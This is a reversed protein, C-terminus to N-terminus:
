IRNGKKKKQNLPFDQKSINEDIPQISTIDEIFSDYTMNREELYGIFYRISANIDTKKEIKTLIKYLATVSNKTFQSIPICELYLSSKETQDTKIFYRIHFWYYRGDQSLFKVLAQVPDGSNVRENIIKFIAQPMDPHSFSNITEGILDFEDYGAIDCLLHNVYEITGEQSLKFNIVTDPKVQIEKNVFTKKPIKM